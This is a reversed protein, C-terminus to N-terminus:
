TFAPAICSFTQQDTVGERIDQMLITLNVNTGMNAPAVSFRQFGNTLRIFTPYEEGPANGPLTGLPFKTITQRIPLWVASPLNAVCAALSGLIDEQKTNIIGSTSETSTDSRLPGTNLDLNSTSAATSDKPDMIGDM